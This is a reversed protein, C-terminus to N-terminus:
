RCAMDWSCAMAVPHSQNAAGTQPAGLVDLTSTAQQLQQAMMQRSRRLSETIDDAADKLDRESLYKRQREQLDAGSLLQRRQLSVLHEARAHLQGAANLGEAANNREQRHRTM